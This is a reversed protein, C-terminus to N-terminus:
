SIFQTIRIHCTRQPNSNARLARTNACCRSLTKSVQSNRESGRHVTAPVGHTARKVSLRETEDLTSDGDSGTTTLLYAFVTRSPRTQIGAEAKEVCSSLLTCRNVSRRAFCHKESWDGATKISTRITVSLLVSPGPSGQDTRRDKQRHCPWLM